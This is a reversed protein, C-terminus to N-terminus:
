VRKITTQKQGAASLYRLVEKLQSDSITDKLKGSQHIQLLYLEVQGALEQNVARIRSLREYAEKSLIKSFLQKKMVEVKKLEELQQNQALEM